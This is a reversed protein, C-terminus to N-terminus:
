CEDATSDHFDRLTQALRECARRTGDDVPFASEIRLEEVAVRRPAAFTTLTTLFALRLGGRLLRVTHRHGRGGGFTPSAGAPRYAPTAFPKQRPACVTARRVASAAGGHHLTASAGVEVLQRVFPRLRNPDFVLEFMDGAPPARRAEDSAFLRFVRRAADNAQLLQYAGSLVTLPFPEQQEMMRAIAGEIESPISDLGDAEPFRQEFGAARLAENQAQLPACRTCCVFSWKLTTARARSRPPLQHSTGLRRRGSRDLQSMGQRGRWYKLLAPFLRATTM